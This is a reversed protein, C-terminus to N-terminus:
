QYERSHNEYERVIDIYKLALDLNLKYIITLPLLIIRIKSFIIHMLFYQFILVLLFYKLNRQYCLLNM